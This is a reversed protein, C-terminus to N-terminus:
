IADRVFIGVLALQARATTIQGSNLSGWDMDEKNVEADRVIAATKVDGASADCKDWIVACAIQRGDAGTLDVATYKGSGAAVTILFGDGSVFDTGGDALTFALGGASFAAAVVGSGIKIGDPDVVEFTGVNAGPEIITLVYVGPKAGASVTIAGMAGDGTNNRGHNGTTFAAATASGVTIKGLVRGAGVNQGSLLTINERSVNGNAESILFEGAHRGETKSSM